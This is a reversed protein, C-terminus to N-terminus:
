DGLRFLEHARAPPRQQVRARSKDRQRAVCLSMLAEWMVNLRTRSAVRYGRAQLESFLDVRWFGQTDEIILFRPWLSQPADRFFPALITDEVGEVDIKLADISRCIRRSWSRCSREANWATQLTPKVSIWRRGRAPAAAIAEISRSRSCKQAAGLAVPLVRIPLGPNADLNFRLRRLNELEPEIALIRANSNADAAVFFSFLGVNAGIDIFIFPRGAAAAIRKHLEEREGAEYFQPTFLLGKECGNRLPHLRM